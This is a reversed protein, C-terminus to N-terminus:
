SLRVAATKIKQLSQRLESCEVELIAFSNHRKLECKQSAMSFLSWVAKSLKHHSYICFNDCFWEQEPGPWIKTIELSPSQLRNQQEVARVTKSVSVSSNSLHLSEEIGVFALVTQLCLMHLCTSNSAAVLKLAPLSRKHLSYQNRQQRLQKNFGSSQQRLGATVKTPTCRQM